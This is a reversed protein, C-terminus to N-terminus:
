VIGAVELEIPWYYKEANIFIKSLFLISQIDKKLINAARAPNPDSKIHYFFAGFDKKKFIDIDRYL